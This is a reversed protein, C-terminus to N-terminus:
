RRVLTEGDQGRRILFQELQQRRREAHPLSM